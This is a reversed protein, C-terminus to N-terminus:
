KGGLKAKLTSELHGGLFDDAKRTLFLWALAKNLYMQFVKWREPSEQKVTELKDNSLAEYFEVMLLLAYNSAWGQTHAMLKEVNRKDNKAIYADLMGNVTKLDRMNPDKPNFNLSEGASHCTAVMVVLLVMCTLVALTRKLM